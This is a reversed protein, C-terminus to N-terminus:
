TRLTKSAGGSTQRAAAERTPGAHRRIAARGGVEAMGGPVAVLDLGLDNSGPYLWGTAEQQGLIWAFGEPGGARGVEAFAHGELGEFSLSKRREAKGAATGAEWLM